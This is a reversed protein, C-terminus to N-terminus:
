ETSDNLINHAMYLYIAIYISLYISLKGHAWPRLKITKSNKVQVDGKLGSLEYRNLEHFPVHKINEM